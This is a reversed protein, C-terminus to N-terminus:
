SHKFVCHTAYNSDRKFPVLWTSHVLFLLDLCCLHDTTELGSCVAFATIFLLRGPLSLTLLNTDTELFSTGATTKETQGRSELPRWEGKWCERSVSM